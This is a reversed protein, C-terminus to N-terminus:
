GRMREAPPEHKEIIERARQQLGSLECIRRHYLAVYRRLKPVSRAIFDADGESAAQECTEIFPEGDAMPLKVRNTKPM